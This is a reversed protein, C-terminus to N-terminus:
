SERALALSSGRLQIQRPWSLPAKGAYQKPHSNSIPLKLRAQPYAIAGYVSLTPIVHPVVPTRLGGELPGGQGPLLFFRYAM